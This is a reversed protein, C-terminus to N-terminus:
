SIIPEIIFKGLHRWSHLSVQMFDLEVFLIVNGLTNDSAWTRLPISFLYLVCTKSLCVAGQFTRWGFRGVRGAACGLFRALARAAGGLAAFLFAKLSWDAKPFNRRGFRGFAGWLCSFLGGLPGSSRGCARLGTELAVVKFFFPLHLSWPAGLFAGPARWAAQPASLCRGWVGCVFVIELCLRSRSFQASWLLWPAGLPARPVRWFARLLARLCGMLTAFM